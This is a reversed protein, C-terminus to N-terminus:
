DVIACIDRLEVRGDYLAKGVIVGGLNQKGLGLLNVIDDRSTVGGSAIVECQVADCFRSVAELNVGELMGDRSTDTYILTSVGLADLEAALDVAETDTTEVWGKVQVKGDKADIGVAIRSGFEAVLAKMGDSDSLARTGIIARSVGVDLLKRVDEDTRLGGGVEVPMDVASVISEIIDLNVPRGEFAGDLDVVHLYSGGESAWRRAMEAPDDSYVTVDDAKGQRLRVCRGDKIDIAPLIIM